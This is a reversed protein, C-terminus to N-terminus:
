KQLAGENQSRDYGRLEGDLERKSDIGGENGESLDTLMQIALAENGLLLVVPKM